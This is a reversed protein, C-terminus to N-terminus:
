RSNRLAWAVRSGMLGLDASSTIMATINIPQNFVRNVEQSVPTRGALMDRSLVYEGQHVVAPGTNNVWGGTAYHDLDGMSIGLEGLLKSALKGAGRIAAKIGEIMNRIINRGWGFAAGALGGLTSSINNALSQVANTVTDKLSNFGNVVNQVLGSIYGTFSSVLTQVWALIGNVMDPVISGGVLTMYLGYFFDIIGQVFGGIFAFIMGFTNFIVQFIGTVTLVVFNLTAQFNGTILMIIANLTGTIINVIGTVFGILFPLATAIGTILGNLLAAIVTMVLAIGNVIIPIAVAAFNQVATFLNKLAPVLQINVADITPKMSKGITQFAPGFVSQLFTAVQQAVTKFQAFTQTAAQLLGSAAMENTAQLPKQGQLDSKQGRIDGFALQNKVEQAKQKLTTIFRDIQGQVNSIVSKTINQIGGWNQNWAILLTGVVAALVLLITVAPSVLKSFTQIYKIISPFSGIFFLFPGAILSFATGFLTLNVIADVVKPDLENFKSVLGSLNTLFNTVSPLLREGLAEKVNDISIRLVDMQVSYTKAADSATGGFKKSIAELIQTKTANDKLYIGVTQLGRMKGNLAKTVTDTAEALDMNAGRALDMEINLLNKAEALDKTASLNKVMVGYTTEDDFGYKITALSVQSIAKQLQEFSMANKNVVETYYGTAQGSAKAQLEQIKLANIQGQIAEVQAKHDGTSLKLIQKQANLQEINAKLEKTNAATTESGTSVWVSTTKMSDAVNKLRADYRTMESQAEAAKDIWDKMMAVGAIGAGTLMGGAVMFAKGMGEVSKRTDELQKSAGDLTKTAEDKVRLIIELANKEM